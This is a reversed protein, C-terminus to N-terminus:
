GTFKAHGCAMFAAMEEHRVQILEPDGGARQLAGMIGNIGDGPFGYIRHVGWERLRELLFDSVTEAVASGVERPTVLTGVGIRQSRRGATCSRNRWGRGLPAASVFTPLNYFNGRSQLFTRPAAGAWRRRDHLNRTPHAGRVM